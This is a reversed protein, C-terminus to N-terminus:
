ICNFSFISSLYFEKLNVMLLLHTLEVGWHAVDTFAFPNQVLHVIMALTYWFSARFIWGAKFCEQGTYVNKSNAFWSSQSLNLLSLLCSVPVAYVLQLSLALFTSVFNNDFIHRLRGHSDKDQVLLAAQLLSLWGLLCTIMFCQSNYSAAWLCLQSFNKFTCRLIVSM